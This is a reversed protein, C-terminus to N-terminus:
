FPSTLESRLTAVVTRFGNIWLHTIGLIFALVLALAPCNLGHYSDQFRVLPGASTHDPCATTALLPYRFHARPCGYSETKTKLSRGIEWDTWRARRRVNYGLLYGFSELLAYSWIVNPRFKWTSAMQFSWCPCHTNLGFAPPLVRLISWPSSQYTCRMYKCQHWQLSSVPAKLYLYAKDTSIM